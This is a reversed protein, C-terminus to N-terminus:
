SITKLYTKALEISVPQQKVAAELRPSLNRQALINKIEPTQAQIAEDNEAEIRVDTKGLSDALFWLGIETKFEPNQEAIKQCAQQCDASRAFALNYETKQKTYDRLGGLKYHLRACSAIYDIQAQTMSQKELLSKVAPNNQILEASKAEHGNHHFGLGKRQPSITRQFKGLDHLPISLALLDKKSRDDIMQGLIREVNESLQWDALYRPVLDAWAKAVEQSHGIIGFQHWQPNHEAVADPTQRFNKNAAVPDILQDALEPLAAMLNRQIEATSIYNRNTEPNNM